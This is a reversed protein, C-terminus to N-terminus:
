TDVKKEHNVSYEDAMSLISFGFYSNAIEQLALLDSDGSLVTNVSNEKIVQTADVIISLLNPSLTSSVTIEELSTFTSLSDM